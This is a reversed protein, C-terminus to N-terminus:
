ILWPVGAFLALQIVLNAAIGAAIDDATVGIGGKLAQLSGIIFPKKVDFFRFLVFAAIYVGITAPLFLLAIWMGCVEDIVICPDDASELARGARGSIIVSLVVCACIAIIQLNQDQPILFIWALLGALSGFTGPAKKIFGIGFVSALFIAFKDSTKMM